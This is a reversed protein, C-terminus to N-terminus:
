QTQSVQKGRVKRVQMKNFRTKFKSHWIFLTRIHGPFGPFDQFKVKANELVPFDQFIGVVGSLGPSRYAPIIFNEEFFYSHTPNIARVMHNKGDWSRTACCTFRKWLVFGNNIYGSALKFWRSQSEKFFRDSDQFLGPHKNRIFPVFGTHLWDWYLPENRM